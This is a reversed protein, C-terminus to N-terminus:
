ISYWGKNSPQGNTWNKKCKPLDIVAHSMHDIGILVNPIVVGDKVMMLMAVGHAAVILM